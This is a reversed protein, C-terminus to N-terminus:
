GRRGADSLDLERLLMAEAAEPSLHAIDSADVPPAAARLKAPADAGNSDPAELEWATMLYAAMADLTPHDFVLTASLPRGFARVLANRLEVAMLSDVGLEKLPRRPDFAAGGDAGLLLRVQESLLGLVEHRHQSAPLARIRALASNSQGNGQAAGHQQKAPATISAVDSFFDRDASELLSAMFRPWDIPLVVGYAAGSALLAELAAFGTAPVIKRLGRAQWIDHTQEAAM